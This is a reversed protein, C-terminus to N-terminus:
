IEDDTEMQRASDADAMRAILDSLRQLDASDLRCVAGMIEVFVIHRRKRPLVQVLASLPGAIADQEKRDVDRRSWNSVTQYYDEYAAVVAERRGELEEAPCEAQIQALSKEQWEYLRALATQKADFFSHPGFYESIITPLCPNLDLDINYRVSRGREIQAM